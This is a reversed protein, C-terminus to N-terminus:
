LDKNCGQCILAVAMAEDHDRGKGNFTHAHCGTECGHQNHDYEESIVSILLDPDITKTPSFRHAVTLQNSVFNSLHFPLSKIITSCYDKEHIQVRAQVLEERKVCLSDLFTHVDSKETCQSELFKTHLDMQTM